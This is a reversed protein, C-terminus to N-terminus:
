ADEGPNASMLRRLELVTETLSLREFVALLESMSMPPNVLSAQQDRVADIVLVPALDILHRVFEDPHQAEIGCGELTV